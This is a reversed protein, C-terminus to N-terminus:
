NRPEHKPVLLIQMNAPSVPERDRRGNVKALIAPTTNFDRALVEFSKETQVEVECRGARATKKAVVACPIYERPIEQLRAAYPRLLADIDATTAPAGQERGRRLVEQLADSLVEEAVVWGPTTPRPVADGLAKRIVQFYEQPSLGAYADERVPAWFLRAALTHQTETSILREILKIALDPHPAGQPIALVDGGLVFKSKEPWEHAVKIYTKGANEMVVKIGYTWNSVMAVENDILMDNATNFQIKTSEPELYPALNWLLTFAQRAGADALTLPDGGMSKVWEFATVAAAKGPHAQIAVRGRSVATDSALDQTLQRLAEWTAPPQDHGAKKLM